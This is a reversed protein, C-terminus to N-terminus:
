GIDRYPLRDECKSKECLFYFCFRKTLKASTSNSVKNNKQFFIFFFSKNVQVLPTSSPSRVYVVGSKKNCCCCSCCGYCLLCLLTVPLGIMILIESWNLQVGCRIKNVAINFDFGSDSGLAHLAELAVCTLADEVQDGQIVAICCILAFIFIGKM